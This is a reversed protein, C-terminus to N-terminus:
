RPSRCASARRGRRRRDRGGGAAGGGGAREGLPRARGATRAAPLHRRRPRRRGQSGAGSGHRVADAPRGDGALQGGVVRRRGAPQRAAPGGGAAPARAAAALEALMRLEYESEVHFREVGRELAAAVEDPTKGPGGFALPRGPVAEAVHALEGGSSVEYGDVYAGLAALIEPEPNAKAAYYLEVREPLADRVAAAHARLAALDYVYAPLEGSPLSLIRERVAPTPDTM